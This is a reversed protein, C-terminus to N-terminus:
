TDERVDRSLLSQSKRTFPNRLDDQIVALVHLSGALLEYLLRLLGAAFPGDRNDKHIAVQVSIHLVLFSWQRRKDGLSAIITSFFIFNKKIAV